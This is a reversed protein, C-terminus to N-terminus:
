AAVVEEDGIPAFATRLFAGLRHDLLLTELAREAKGELEECLRRFEERAEEPDHADLIRDLGRHLADHHRKPARDLIEDREISDEVEAM